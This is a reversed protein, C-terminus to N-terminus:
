LSAGAAPRTAAVPDFAAIPMQVLRRAALYGIAARAAIPAATACALGILGLNLVFSLAGLMLFMVGGCWFSIWFAQRHRGIAIMIQDGIGFLAMGLNGISFILTCYYARPDPMNLIVSLVFTGLLAFGVISILLLGLAIRIISGAEHRAAPLDSADYSRSSMPVLLQTAGIFPFLILQSVRLAVTYVGTDSPPLLLTGLSLGFLGTQALLVLLSIWIGAQAHGVSERITTARNERAIAFGRSRAHYLLVVFQVAEVTLTVLIWVDLDTVLSSAPAALLLVGLLVGVILPQLGFTAVVNAYNQSTFKFFGSLTLRAAVLGGLAAILLLNQSVIGTVALVGIVVLVLGNLAIAPLFLSLSVGRDPSLPDRQLLNKLLIRDLGATLVSGAFSAIAVSSAYIGFEIPSLARASVIISFFIGFYCLIQVSLGQVLRVVSRANM